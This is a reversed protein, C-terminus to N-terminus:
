RGLRKNVAARAEDMYKRVDYGAGFNSTGDDNTAWSDSGSVDGNKSDFMSKMAVAATWPDTLRLNKFRPNARPLVNIQWLGWSDDVPGLMHSRPNFGASERHSIAVMLTAKTPDTIGVTVVLDAVEDATLTRDSPWSKGAPPTYQETGPGPEGGVEHTPGTPSAENSSSSGGGTDRRYLSEFYDLIDKGKTKSVVAALEEPTAIMNFKRTEKKWGIGDSLRSIFANAAVTKLDLNSSTITLTLRYKPNFNGPSLEVSTSGSEVMSRIYVEHDWGRPPYVFRVPPGDHRQSIGIELVRQLMAAQEQWGGAGFSGAVVLDGLSTSLAQVVRGGLTDISSSHINVQYDVSEPDVAFPVGDLTAVGM